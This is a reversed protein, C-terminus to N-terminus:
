ENLEINLEVTFLKEDNTIKLKHKNPYILELRRKANEIGIGGILANKDNQHVAKDNIVAFYLKNKSNEIVIKLFPSESKLGYKFANEIFVFFILPAIKLNEANSLKIEQEIRSNPPYRIKEMEFYNETFEIEKMFFIFESSTDYLTYRMVDSLKLIVEPTLDSKKLSLAYISNLTNFLFHPNLQTLLFKNEMKLNEVNLSEIKKTAKVSQSYLRTSDFFLKIFFFPAISMLIEFFHAFFNKLSVLELLTTKHNREILEDLAGNDIKIKSEYISFYFYYNLVMWLLILLPISILFLILYSKNFTYPVILYFFLYFVVMNSFSMRLALLAAAKLEFHYGLYYNLILLTAFFLWM